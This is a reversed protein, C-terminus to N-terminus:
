TTSIIRSLVAQHCNKMESVASALSNILQLPISTQSLLQAQSVSLM